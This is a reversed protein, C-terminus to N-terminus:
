IGQDMDPYVLNGEDGTSVESKTRARELTYEQYGIIIQEIEDLRTAVNYLAHRLDEIMEMARPPNQPNLEDPGTLNVQISKFMNVVQQVDEASLGLIKSAEKLVDEEDVTYSLKVRMTNKM